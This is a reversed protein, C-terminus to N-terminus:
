LFPRITVQRGSRAVNHDAIAQAALRDLEALEALLWLM